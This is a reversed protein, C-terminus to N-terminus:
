QNMMFPGMGLLVRQLNRTKTSNGFVEGWSPEGMEAEIQIGELIENLQGKVEPDGDARDLLRAIVHRAEETRGHKALWRPTECLFPCCCLVMASFLMQCAIPFRFQLSSYSTHRAYLTAFCIWSAVAVGLIILGSQVVLMAGRNHAPLTETQLIPVAVTSFGVGAGVIIRSVAMQAYSYSATQIAAGIIM